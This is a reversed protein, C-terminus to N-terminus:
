PNALTTLVLSFNPNCDGAIPAYDGILNIVHEALDNKLFNSGPSKRASGATACAWNVNVVLLPVMMIM